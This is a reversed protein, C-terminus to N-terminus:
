NVRTEGILGTPNEAAKYASSHNQALIVSLSLTCSGPVGWNACRFIGLPAFSWGLHLMTAAAQVLVM